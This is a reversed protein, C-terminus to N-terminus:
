GGDEWCSLLLRTPDPRPPPTTLSDVPRHLRGNVESGLRMTCSHSLFKPKGPLPLILVPHQERQYGQLSGDADSLPLVARHLPAQTAPGNIGVAM